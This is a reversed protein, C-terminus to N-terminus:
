RRSNFRSHPARRGTMTLRGFWRRSRPQGEAPEPHCLPAPEPLTSGHELRLRKNEGIAGRCKGGADGIRQPHFEGGLPPASAPQTSSGSPMMSMCEHGSPRRSSMKAGVRSPRLRTSSITFCRMSCTPEPRDGQPSSSAGRCRRVSRGVLRGGCVPTGGRGHHVVMPKGAQSESSVHTENGARVEITQRAGHQKRVHFFDVIDHERMGFVHLRFTSM